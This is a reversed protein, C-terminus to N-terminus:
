GGVIIREMLPNLRTLFEYYTTGSKQSPEWASIEDNGDKGILTAVNGPRAAGSLAVVTMDMSIRGLVKARRGNVIAEGISSLSRPLGHWYGVPVIAMMTERSIREALDYGVYDGVRLRKTETIAARWSLVPRLVIKEGLQIELEKSPWLGYLGIGIRVADLHYKKGCLTGGTAAAHCMLNKFGAKRFLTDTKQFKGFQMETYGPYNVDKASAFHTYIGRLAVALKKDKLINKIVKPIDKGYFGQRHMGTDIKVHYDPVMKAKALAALGDATSITITIGNEAAEVYRAPLTPGLVLIPKQIGERRLALGEVVSDVCFGDAGIRDMLKSFAYLGHGYANSKVVAWLMVNKGILNRFTAYNKRAARADIEIWTRLHDLNKKM